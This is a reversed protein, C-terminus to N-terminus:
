MTVLIKRVRDVCLVLLFSLLQTNREGSKLGVFDEKM